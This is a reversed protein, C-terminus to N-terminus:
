LRRVVIGGRKGRGAVADPYSQGDPADIYFLHWEVDDFLGNRYFMWLWARFAAISKFSSAEGPYEARCNSGGNCLAWVKM